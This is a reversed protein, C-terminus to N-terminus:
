RRLSPAQLEEARAIVKRAHVSGSLTHGNGLKVFVHGHGAKYLQELHFLVPHRVRLACGKVDAWGDNGGVGHQAYVGRM